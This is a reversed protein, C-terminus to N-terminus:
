WSARSPFIKKGNRKGDKKNNAALWARRLVLSLTSSAAPQLQGHQWARKQPFGAFSNCKITFKHTQKRGGVGDGDGNGDWKRKSHV